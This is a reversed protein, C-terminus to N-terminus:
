RVSFAMVPDRATVGMGLHEPVSAKRVRLGEVSIDLGEWSQSETSATTSPQM